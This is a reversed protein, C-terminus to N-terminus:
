PVRQYSLKARLWWDRLDSPKLKHTAKLKHRERMFVPLYKIFRGLARMLILPHFVALYALKQLEHWAFWPLDKILNGLSDNKLLVALHNVFAYLHLAAPWTSHLYILERKSNTEGGSASRAHYAIAQPLCWAQWNGLRLRWALDVDEKYSIFREDFVLGSPSVTELALRRYLSATAPVGFVERAVMYQGHDHDGQGLNTVRRSRHIRLGISDIIPDSPTSLQSLHFTDPNFQWQWLKGTIAGIQPNETLGRSLQDVYDPALVTDQNLVLVYDSDTWLIAQNHARAFGLNQKNRVLRTRLSLWPYQSLFSEVQEVSNDASGNDILLIFFDQTTQQALSELCFPLWTAGNFMVLNVSVPYRKNM